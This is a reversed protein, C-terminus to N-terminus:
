EPRPHRLPPSFNVHRRIANDGCGGGISDTVDFLGNVAQAPRPLVRELLSDHNSFQFGTLVTEIGALCVRLGALAAIQPRKSAARRSLLVLPFHLIEFPM